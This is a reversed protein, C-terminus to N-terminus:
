WNSQSSQNISQKNNCVNRPSWNMGSELSKRVRSQEQTLHAPFTHKQFKPIGNCHIGLSRFLSGNIFTRFIALFYGFFREDMKLSQKNSSQSQHFVELLATSFLQYLLKDYATESVEIAYNTSIWGTKTIASFKCFKLYLQSTVQM